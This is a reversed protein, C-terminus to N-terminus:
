IGEAFIRFIRQGGALGNVPRPAHCFMERASHEILRAHVHVVVFEVCQALLRQAIQAVEAVTRQRM